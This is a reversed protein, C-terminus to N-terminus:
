NSFYQFYIIVGAVIACVMGRGVARSQGNLL